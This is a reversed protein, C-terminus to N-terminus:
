KNIMKYVSKFSEKLMSMEAKVYIVYENVLWGICLYRIM